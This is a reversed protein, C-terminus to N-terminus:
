RSIPRVASSRDRISSPVRSLAQQAQERTGYRGYYVRYCSRAGLPQPVFWIEAGGTKMIKDLNSPDCLIQIQISFNGRPNASFERAM